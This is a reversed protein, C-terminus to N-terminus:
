AKPSRKKATASSAPKEVMFRGSVFRGVTRKGDLERVMWGPRDECGFYLPIGKKRPLKVGPKLLASKGRRLADQGAKINARLVREPPKAAKVTVSGFSVSVPPWDGEMPSRSKKVAVTM